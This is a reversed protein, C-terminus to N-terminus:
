GVTKGRSRLHNGQFPDDSFRGAQRDMHRLKRILATTSGSTVSVKAGDPEYDLPMPAHQLQMAPVYDDGLVHKQVVLAQRVWLECNHYRMAHAPHTSIYVPPETTARGPLSFITDAFAWFTPAVKPDYGAAAMLMMGLFDAETEHLRSFPLEYLMQYFWALLPSAGLVLTVLPITMLMGRSVSEAVHRAVAHGVEHALVVALKVEELEPGGIRRDRRISELLGTNVVVKGGPLCFANIVPSRVVVFEWEYDPLGTVQAIRRGVSAVLKTDDHEPPLTECDDSDLMAKFIANGM